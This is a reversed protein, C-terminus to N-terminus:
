QCGSKYKSVPSRSKPSPAQGSLCLAQFSNPYSVNCDMLLSLWSLLYFFFGSDTDSASVVSFCCKIPQEAVSRMYSLPIQRYMTGDVSSQVRRCWNSFSDFTCVSWASPSLEETSEMKRLTDLQCILYVVVLRGRTSKVCVDTYLCQRRQRWRMNIDCYLVGDYQLDWLRLVEICQLGLDRKFYQKKVTPEWSILIFYKRIRLLFLGPVTVIM